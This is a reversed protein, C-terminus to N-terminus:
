NQQISLNKAAQRRQLKMSVISSGTTAPTVLQGVLHPHQHLARWSSSELPLAAASSRSNLSQFKHSVKSSGTSTPTTLENVLKQIM